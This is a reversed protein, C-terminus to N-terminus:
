RTTSCNQVWGANTNRLFYIKTNFKTKKHRFLAWAGRPSFTNMFWKTELLYYLAPFGKITSGYSKHSFSRSVSYTGIKASSIQSQFICLNILMTLAWVECIRFGLQLKLSWIIVQVVWVVSARHQKQEALWSVLHQRKMKVLCFGTIVVHLWDVLFLGIPQSM